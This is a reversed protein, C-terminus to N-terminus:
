KFCPLESLDEFDDSGAQDPNDRPLCALRQLGLAATSPNMYCHWGIQQPLKEEANLRGDFRARRLWTDAEANDHLIAGGQELGLIKSSQFSVCVFHGTRHFAIADECGMRSYMGSTFRRASDWIPFPKLSYAGSWKEPVFIPKGGAHIIAQPVSCYTRAPISIGFSGPWDSLCWAVSLQIAMTCSNTTVAFRAGTYECLAAEFENVVHYSM